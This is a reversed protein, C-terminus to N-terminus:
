GQCAEPLGGICEAQRANFLDFYLTCPASPALKAENKPM